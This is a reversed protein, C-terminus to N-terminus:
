LAGPACATNERAQSWFYQHQSVSLDVYPQPDKHMSELMQLHPIFDQVAPLIQYNSEYVGALVAATAQSTGKYVFDRSLPLQYLLMHLSQRLKHYNSEMIVQEIGEKDAIDEFVGPEVEVMVMTTNGTNIKGSLFRIKRATRRQTEREQLPQLMIEAM